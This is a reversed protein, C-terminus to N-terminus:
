INTMALSRDSYRLGAVKDIALGTSIRGLDNITLELEVSRANQELHDIKRAGPIPVIHEGQNLLWALCIEANSVGKEIAIENLARRLRLNREFNEGQFRPLSRRFDDSRLDDIKQIGGALFGRGLPSYPVFGIGLEQCVQLVGNQDPERSWLSYESQVASIPHVAHARRITNASAESLGLARIKGQRVLDAMTGVVDEIPVAPDVRHQYYLDIVERGLRKLSHDAVRKINEPRSDLGIMSEPGSRSPDIQFGFKTAIVINDQRGKLAKGLLVENEYPGYAEATDFFTVGIDLARHLTKVADAESGGSYAFSMGMCGLGIASVNLSSGLKRKRM